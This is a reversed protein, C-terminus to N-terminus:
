ARMRARMAEFKRQQVERAAADYLQVVVLRAYLLSSLALWLLLLGLWGSWDLGRLALLVLGLPVVYVSVSQLRAKLYITRAESDLVSRFVKGSIAQNIQGEGVYLRKAVPSVSSIWVLGIWTLILAGIIVAVLRIVGQEVGTLGLALLSCVFVLGGSLMPFIFYFFDIVLAFLGQVAKTGRDNWRPLPTSFGNQTNEMSEIQYGEVIPYGVVTLSLAGGVLIKRWWARDRHITSIATKLSAM